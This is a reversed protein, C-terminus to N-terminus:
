MYPEGTQRSRMIRAPTGFAVVSDPLNQNVYSNAGVVVDKGISVGHKVVAGLLIASRQGVKVDGGFTARPALSSFRETVCNHDVTASTNLICFSGIRSSPGVVSHPMLVAGIGIVSFTSVVASSHILPPFHLRGHSSILKEYVVERACNDGIGLAFNYEHFNQIDDIASVVDVGLLKRGSSSSDVFYRVTFGAAIAVNAVSVAHGGSGVIILSNM